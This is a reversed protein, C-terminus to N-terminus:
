NSKNLIIDYFKSDRIGKQKVYFLNNYRSTPINFVDSIISSANNYLIHEHRKHFNPLIFTKNFMNIKAYQIGQIYDEPSKSQREMKIRIKANSLEKELYENGYKYILLESLEEILYNGFWDYKNLKNISKILINIAKRIRGKRKLNLAKYGMLSSYLSRYEPSRFDICKYKLLKHAVKSSNLKLESGSYFEMVILERAVNYKNEIFQDKYKPAKGSKIFQIELRKLHKHLIPDIKKRTDLNIINMYIHAAQKFSGTLEFYQGITIYNEITKIDLPYNKLLYEYYISASDLMESEYFQYAKTQIEKKDMQGLIQNCQILLLIGLISQSFQILVGGM